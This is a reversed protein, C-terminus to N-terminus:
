RETRFIGSMARLPHEAGEALATVKACAFAGKRQSLDDGASHVGVVGIRADRHRSLSCSAGAVSDM